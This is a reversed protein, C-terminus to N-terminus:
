TARADLLHRAVALLHRLGEDRSERPRSGRIRTM